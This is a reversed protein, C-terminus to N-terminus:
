YNNRNLREHALLNFELVFASLVGILISLPFLLAFQQLYTMGLPWLSQMPPVVSRTLRLNAIKTDVEAIREIQANRERKLEGLKSTLEDKDEPVTLYLKEELERLQEQSETIESDILLLTMARDDNESTHMVRERSLKASSTIQALNDIHTLLLQEQQEFRKMRNTLTQSEDTLDGLKNQAELRELELGKKIEKLVREHDKILADLVAQQQTIYVDKTDETGDSYLIAVNSDEPVKVKIKYRETDDPHALAYSRQALPIYSNELKAKVTEAQEIPQARGNTGDSDFRTGIEITTTYAYKQPWLLVTATGVLLTILATLLTTRKHRLLVAWVRLLSLDDENEVYSSPSKAEHSTREDNQEM